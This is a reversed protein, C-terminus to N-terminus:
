LCYKEFLQFEKRCLPCCIKDCKKECKNICVRHFEHNCPLCVWNGDENTLCISCDEKHSIKYKECDKCIDDDAIYSECARCVKIKRENPHKACMQLLFWETIKEALKDCKICDDCDCEEESTCYNFTYELLERKSKAHFIKVYREEIEGDDDNTQGFLLTTFGNLSLPLAPHWYDDNWEFDWGNDYAIELGEQIIAKMRPAYCMRGFDHFEYQISSM